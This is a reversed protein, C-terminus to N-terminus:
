KTKKRVPKLLHDATHVHPLQDTEDQHLHGPLSHQKLPPDGGLQEGLALYLGFVDRGNFLSDATEKRQKSVLTIPYIRYKEGAETKNLLLSPSSLHLSIRVLSPTSGEVSSQM